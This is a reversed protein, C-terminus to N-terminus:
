RNEDEGEDDSSKFGKAHIGWHPYKGAGAVYLGPLGILLLGLLANVWHEQAIGQYAQPIPALFEYLFYALYAFFVVAGIVRVAVPRGTRSFCAIVIMGLFLFWGTEALSAGGPPRSAIMELGFALVVVGITWRAWRSM